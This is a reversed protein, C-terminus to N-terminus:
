VQRLMQMGRWIEAINYEPHRDLLERALRTADSDTERTTVFLLADQPRAHRLRIEFKDV